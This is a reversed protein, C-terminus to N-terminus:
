PRDGQVGLAARTLSEPSRRDAHMERGAALRMSDKDPADLVKGCSLCASPALRTEKGLYVAKARARSM